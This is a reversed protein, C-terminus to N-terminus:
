ANHREIYDVALEVLSLDSEVKGVLLNCRNCLLDRIKGTEHNHDVSLRNIANTNRHKVSEPEGCLACVGNQEEFMRDYDILSLGYSKNLVRQRGRELVLKRNEKYHKKNYAKACFKCKNQYGDIARPHKYFDSLVRIKKCFKCKKSKM